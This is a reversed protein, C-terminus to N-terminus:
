DTGGIGVSRRIIVTLRSIKVATWLEKLRTLSLCLILRWLHWILSSRKKYSILINETNNIPIKVHHLCEKRDPPLLEGPEVLQQNKEAKLDRYIPFSWPLMRHHKNQQTRGLAQSCCVGRQNQKTKNQKTKNQKTKQSLTKRYLGPQRPVWETSWAPRLSLFRGAEAEWTNPNFAHAV